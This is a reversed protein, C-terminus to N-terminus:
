SGKELLKKSLLFCYTRPGPQLLWKLTMVPHRWYCCIGFAFILKRLAGRVLCSLGPTLDKKNDSPSIWYSNCDATSYLLNQKNTCILPHFILSAPPSLCCPSKAPSTSKQKLTPFLSLNASDKKRLLNDHSAWPTASPTSPAFSRYYRSQSLM